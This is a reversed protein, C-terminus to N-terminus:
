ERTLTVAIDDLLQLEIRSTTARKISYSMGTEDYDSLLNLSDGQVLWRQKHSLTDQGFICGEYGYTTVELSDEHFVFFGRMEYSTGPPMEGFSTSDAQWRASWQGQFDVEEAGENSGSCAVFFLIIAFVLFNRM